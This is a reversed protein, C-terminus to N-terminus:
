GKIKRQFSTRYDNLIDKNFGKLCNGCYFVGGHDKKGGINFLEMILPDNADVPKNCIYCRADKFLELYTRDSRDEQSTQTKNKIRTGGQTEPGDPTKSQLYCDEHVIARSAKSWYGLDGISLRKKCNQCLGSFKVKIKIWDGSSFLDNGVTMLVSAKM